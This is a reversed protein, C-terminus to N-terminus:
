RLVLKALVKEKESGIVLVKPFLLQPLTSLSTFISENAEQLLASFETNVFYAKHPYEPKLM